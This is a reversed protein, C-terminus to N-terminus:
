NVPGEHNRGCGNEVPDGKDADAQRALLEGRKVPIDLPAVVRLVVKTAMTKVVVVRVNGIHIEENKKRSLTLVGNKQDMSETGQFYFQLIVAAMAVACCIFALVSDM